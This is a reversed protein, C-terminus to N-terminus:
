RPAVRTRLREQTARLHQGVRERYFGSLEQLCELNALGAELLAQAQEEYAHAMSGLADADPLLRAAWVEGLRQHGQEQHLILARVPVLLDVARALLGPPAQFVVTGVGELVSQLGVLSAALAGRDLDAHLRAAYASLGQRLAPPCRASGPLCGLANRFVAAHGAEQWSQHRLARALRPPALLAQRAAVDRSIEEAQTITALLPALSGHSLSM